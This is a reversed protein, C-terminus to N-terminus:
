IDEERPVPSTLLILYTCIQRVNVYRIFNKIIIYVWKLRTNKFGEDM